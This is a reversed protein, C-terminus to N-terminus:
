SAPMMYPFVWTFRCTDKIYKMVALIARKNLEYNFVPGGNLLVHLDLYVFPIFNLASFLNDRHGNYQTCFFFYHGANEIDIGCDCILHPVVNIRQLDTKLSSCSHRIRTRIINYKRDGISLFDNVKSTQKRLESKIENLTSSRRIDIDLENWLRLTSPIFSTEHSCLRLFPVEFNERSRSNYNPLEQVRYPLLDFLYAPSDNNIIKYM